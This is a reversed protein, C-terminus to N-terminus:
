SFHLVSLHICEFLQVYRGNQCYRSRLQWRRLRSRSLDRGKDKIGCKIYEKSEVQINSTCKDEGFFVLMRKPVRNALRQGM